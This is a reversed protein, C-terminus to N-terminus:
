SQGTETVDFKMGNQVPVTKGPTLSGGTNGHSYTVTFFANPPVPNFALAVVEEFSIPRDPVKKPRGNVIITIEKDKSSHENSM